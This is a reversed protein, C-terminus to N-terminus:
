LPTVGCTHRQSPIIGWAEQRLAKPNTLDGAPRDDPMHHFRQIWERDLAGSFMRTSSGREGFVLASVM